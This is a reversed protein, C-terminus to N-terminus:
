PVRSFTEAVVHGQADKLFLTLVSGASYAVSIPQENTPCTRTMSLDTGQAAITMRQHEPGSAGKQAAVITTGHVLITATM